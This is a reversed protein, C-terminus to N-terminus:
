LLSQTLSQKLLGAPARRKKTAFFEVGHMARLFEVKAITGDGDGATASVGTTAPATFTADNLPGGLFIAPAANVRVTVPSSTTAAGADPAGGLAVTNTPLTTALRADAISQQEPALRGYLAKAASAIEELVTLRNRAVDVSQDIRQLAKLQLTARLRGRERSIDAALASVKDAYADWLPQQVGTLKLDERLLQLRYETLSVADEQIAPRQEGGPRQDTGYGGQGDRSARSGGGPRFQAMAETAAAAMIALLLLALAMNGAKMSAM